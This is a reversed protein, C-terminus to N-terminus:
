LAVLVFCLDAIVLIIAGNDPAVARAGVYEFRDRVPWAAVDDIDIRRQRPVKQAFLHRLELNQPL